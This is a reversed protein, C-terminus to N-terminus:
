GEEYRCVKLERVRKDESLLFASIIIDYGHFEDDRLIIRLKKTYERVFEGVKHSTQYDRSKV